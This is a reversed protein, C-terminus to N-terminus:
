TVTIDHADLYIPESCDFISDRRTRRIRADDSRRRGSTAIYLRSASLKRCRRMIAYTDYACTAM